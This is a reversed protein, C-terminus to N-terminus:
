GYQSTLQGFRIAGGGFIDLEHLMAQEIREALLRHRYYFWRQLSEQSCWPRRALIPRGPSM